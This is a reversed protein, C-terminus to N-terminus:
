RPSAAAVPRDKPPKKAPKKKAQQPPTPPPPPEPGREMSTLRGSVFRYIGPREGRMYTLVSTREGRHNTGVEVDDAPGARRVVDCETMSLAIGGAVIEAGAAPDADACRGDLGVLAQGRVVRASGTPVNTDKAWDPRAFLGPGSSCAGLLLLLMPLGVRRCARTVTFQHVPLGRDKDTNQILCHVFRIQTVMM